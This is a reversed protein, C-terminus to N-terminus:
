FQFYLFESIRNISMISMLMCILTVIFYCWNPKFKKAWYVANYPNFLLLIAPIFVLLSLKLGWGTYTIRLKDIIPLDFGNVGILGQCIIIAKDVSEARFFVFALTTYLFTILVALCKPIKINFNHWIKHVASGFGHFAGWIIFTWNAGHWLGGILFTLILNRYTKINGKRNGGMPIYLYDRLFRSLTMHWRRWFDQISDAVYPSNFNQPLVINFLYGIGMAMDCYGSFDFYLQAAYAIMGFWSQSFSPVLVENFIQGVFPSLSDAIMVKKFLGIALLFLGISINKLNLFKNRLNEFQPMMEKHHVIPGAILQPFFTVFLAYNLFDYEKTENRYSDVLYSIQQFTFFSIGLPLIINIYNFDQHFLNNINEILFDFYKFYGLLLINGLIGFIFVTKKNINLKIRQVLTSGISYNFIMSILIIPLYDLKWYSYFYLSTLVLWAKAIEILKFKNLLFYGIFTIPLFIFLFELSNFLM